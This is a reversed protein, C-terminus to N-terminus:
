GTDALVLLAPTRLPGAYSAPLGEVVIEPSPRAVAGVLALFVPNDIASSESCWMSAWSPLSRVSGDQSASLALSLGVSM